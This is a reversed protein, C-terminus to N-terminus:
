FMETQKRITYLLNEKLKTVMFEDTAIRDELARGAIHDTIILNPTRSNLYYHSERVDVAAGQIKKKILANMLASENVISGRATNIFYATPKMNYLLNKSVMWKTQENEELHVSIFDCSIFLGKLYYQNHGKDFEKVEMGMTMAREAVHKGIRGMGLIGLKKGKLSIPYPGVERALRLMLYITFDAVTTIGSLFETEGRLTLCDGSFKEQSYQLHTHGTTPSIIYKLRPFINLHQDDFITYQDLIVVEIENVSNAAESLSKFVKGFTEWRKYFFEDGETPKGLHLLKM